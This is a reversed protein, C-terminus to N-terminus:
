TREPFLKEVDHGDRVKQRLLELAFALGLGSVVGLMLGGALIFLPNPWIPFESAMPVQQISFFPTELELVVETQHYRSEVETLTTKFEDVESKLKDYTVSVDDRETAVGKQKLLQANLENESDKANQLDGELSALASTAAESLRAKAENIAAEARIYRPHKFLFEKKIQEFESQARRLEQRVDVIDPLQAIASVRLIQNPTLEKRNTLGVARLAAELDIRKSRADTVRRDLDSLRDDVRSASVVGLALDRNQRLFDELASQKIALQERLKKASAALQDKLGSELARKKDQEQSEYEKIYANVVRKAFEPDTDRYSISVVRTGRELAISSKLQVQHIMAVMSGQLREGLSHNIIMRQILSTSLLNQEVTKLADISRM